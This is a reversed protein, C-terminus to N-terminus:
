IKLVISILLKVIKIIKESSDTKVSLLITFIKNLIKLFKKRNKGELLGEFESRVNEVM